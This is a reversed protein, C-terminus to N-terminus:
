EEEHYRRHSYGIGKNVGGSLNEGDIISTNSLLHEKITVNAVSVENGIKIGSYITADEIVAKEGVKVLRHLESNSITVGDKINCNQGIKVEGILTCKGIRSNNGIKINQGYPMVLLKALLEPHILVQEGIKIGLAKLKIIQEPEIGVLEVKKPSIKCSIVKNNM